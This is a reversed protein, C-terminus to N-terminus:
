PGPLGSLPNAPAHGDTYGMKGAANVAWSKDQAEFPEVRRRGRPRRAGGDSCFLRSLLASIVGNSPDKVM